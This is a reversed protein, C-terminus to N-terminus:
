FIAKLFEKDLDEQMQEEAVDKTDEAVKDLLQQPMDPLVSIPKRDQLACLLTPM